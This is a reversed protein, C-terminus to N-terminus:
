ERLMGRNHLPQRPYNPPRLAVSTFRLTPERRAKDTIREIGTTMTSLEKGQIFAQIEGQTSVMADDFVGVNAPRKGMHGAKGHPRSERGRLVVPWYSKGDIM